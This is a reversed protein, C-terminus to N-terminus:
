QSQLLNGPLEGTPNGNVWFPVGLVITHEYGTAKQILRKGTAPLDYHIKPANLQLENYNIISTGNCIILTPMEEM